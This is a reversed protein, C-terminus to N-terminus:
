WLTAMFFKWGGSPKGWSGLDSAGFDQLVKSLEASASARQEAEQRPPPAPSPWPQKQHFFNISFHSSPLSWGFDPFWPLEVLWSFSPIHIVYPWIKPPNGFILLIKFSLERSKGPFAIPILWGVRPSGTALAPYPWWIPPFKADLCNERDYGSTTQPHKSSTGLKMTWSKYGWRKNRRDGDKDRWNRM